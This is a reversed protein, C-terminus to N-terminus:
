KKVAEVYLSELDRADSYDSDPLRNEIVQLEYLNGEGKTVKKISKFNANVLELQLSEYDWMWKHEWNYFMSNFVQANTIMNKREKYMINDRGQNKLTKRYLGFFNTDDGKYLKEVWISLDPCIFRVVGEPKMVRNVEVFFNKAEEYTLHEIFHSCFVNSISNDEFPLGKNVDWLIAKGKYVSHEYIDIGAQVGVKWLESPRGHWLTVGFWDPIMEEFSAGINIKDVNNITGIM